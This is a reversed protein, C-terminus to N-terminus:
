TDNRIDSTFEAPNFLSELVEKRNPGVQNQTKKKM